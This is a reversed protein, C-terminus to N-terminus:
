MFFPRRTFLMKLHNKSACMAWLKPHWFPKRALLACKANKAACFQHRLFRATEKNCVRGLIIELIECSKNSCFFNEQSGHLRLKRWSERSQKTKIATDIKYTIMLDSKQNNYQKQWSIISKMETMKDHTYKTLIKSFAMALWVGLMILSTCKIWWKPLTTFYFCFKSIHICIPFLNVKPYNRRKNWCFCCWLNIKWKKEFISVLHKPQSTDYKQGLNTAM